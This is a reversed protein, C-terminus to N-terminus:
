LINLHSAFARILSHMHAPQDSAKCTACVVNNSIEHRPENIVNIAIDQPIRDLIQSWTPSLCGTLSFLSALLSLYVQEPVPDLKFISIKCKAYKALTKEQSQVVFFSILCCWHAPQDPGKSNTHLVILTELFETANIDDIPRASEKAKTTGILEKDGLTTRHYSKCVTQVWIIGLLKNPRILIWVTQCEPPLEQFFNEFFIIKFFILLRLFCM